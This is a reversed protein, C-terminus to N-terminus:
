SVTEWPPSYKSCFGKFASQGANSALITVGRARLIDRKLKLEAPPDILNILSSPSGSACVGSERFNDRRLEAHPDILPSSSKSSGM